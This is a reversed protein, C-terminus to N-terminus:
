IQALSTVGVDFVFGVTSHLMEAKSSKLELISLAHKAALGGKGTFFFVRPKAQGLQGIGKRHRLRLAVLDGFSPRGEKM